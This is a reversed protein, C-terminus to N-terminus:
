IAPLGADAQRPGPLVRVVVLTKDDNRLALGTFQRIEWLIREAVESATSEPRDSLARLIAQRMRKKGFKEGSFNTADPIGDTYAILVDRERLDFLARQYRQSPDIGVVMGGVSLEDMDASTPARHEPVRVIIPPEHGGSCYTLRLRVPDIVGYWLSAFENDRTDKCLAINVRSVVEDLDYLDQVFARLSARVSSMLLAAAIGKGVVDGVVVGVHGNLDIYDYFDGGLESSPIYRAAMDLTPINPPTRPLMRQQVDAALQLQRQVRQEEHEFRLLRSQELAAAAQQALSALLGRDAEDFGRPTRSYLRIVGMPKNKFVLGAQIAAGLGEEAAKEGILIREDAAINESVVIQGSLALRDFARGKSLPLPHELWDRSLGRSARVVLDEERETSLGDFDEKFLYVAGADLGLVEIASDLTVALVSDPGAARVLLSSMKALAAVEKVRHRLEVEHQCIEGATGALLRLARELRERADQSLRPEGPGVVITGLAGSAADALRLPISIMGSDPPAQSADVVEWGGGRERPRILRGAEDRLEVHVGTLRSMEACLAPLSGDTLFDTISRRAPERAAEGAGGLPSPARTERGNRALPEAQNVQGGAM